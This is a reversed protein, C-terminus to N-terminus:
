EDHRRSGRDGAPVPDDAVVWVFVERPGHVGVVHVSAIDATNSPGSIFSMCSALPAEESAIARLVDGLTELIRGEPVIVGIAPPLLSYGRREDASSKVVVTGTEAAAWAAESLGFAAERAEVTRQEAIGRWSLGPACAVSGWSRERMLREVANRVEQQSAVLRVVVGLEGLRDVFLDIRERSRLVRHESLNLPPSVNQQSVGAALHSRLRALFVNREM